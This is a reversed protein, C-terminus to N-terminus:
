RAPNAAPSAQVLGAVPAAGSAAKHPFVTGNLALAVFLVMGVAFVQFDILRLFAGVSFVVFCFFALFFFVAAMFTLAHSETSFAQYFLMGLQPVVGALFLLAFVPSVLRDVAPHSLVSKMPNQAKSSITSQVVGDGPIELRPARTGAGAFLSTTYIWDDWAAAPRRPQRKPQGKMQLGSVAASEERLPEPMIFEHSLFLFDEDDDM